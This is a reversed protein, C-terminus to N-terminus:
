VPVRIHAHEQISGKHPGCGRATASERRFRSARLRHVQRYGLRWPSIVAHATGVSMPIGMGCAALRKRETEVRRVGSVAQGCIATSNRGRFRSYSDAFPEAISVPLQGQFRSAKPRRLLRYPRSRQQVDLRQMWRRNQNRIAPIPNRSPAGRASLRATGDLPQVPLSQLTGARWCSTSGTTRAGGRSRALEGLRRPSLTNETHPRLM